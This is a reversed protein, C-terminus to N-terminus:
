LKDVHLTLTVHRTGGPEFRHRPGSHLQQLGFQLQCAGCRLADAGVLLQQLRRGLQVPCHLLTILSALSSQVFQQLALRQSQFCLGVQQLFPQRDVSLLSHRM